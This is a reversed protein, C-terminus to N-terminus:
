AQQFNTANFAELNKVVRSVFPDGAFGAAQIENQHSAISSCPPIKKKANNNKVKQKQKQKKSKRGM